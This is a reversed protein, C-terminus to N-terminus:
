EGHRHRPEQETTPDNEQAVELAEFKARWSAAEEPKSWVEYLAVLLGRAQRTRYDRKDTGLTRIAQLLEQEAEDYRGMRTLCDGLHSRSFATHPHEDGLVRRRIQLTQRHLSEAEAYKGQKWLVFGLNNMSELTDPHENGLLRRRIELTQRNLTEAEAYKGQGGLALSLGNISWFTHRHENGLVRRRIELTQRHLTEAETYKGQNWLVFGINNM